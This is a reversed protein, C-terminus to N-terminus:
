PDSSGSRRVVPSRSWHLPLQLVFGHLQLRRRCESRVYISVAVRPSESMVFKWGVFMSGPARDNM